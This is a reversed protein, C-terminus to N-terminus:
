DHKRDGTHIPKHVNLSILDTLSTNSAAEAASGDGSRLSCREFMGSVRNLVLGSGEECGPCVTPAVWSAAWKLLGRMPM